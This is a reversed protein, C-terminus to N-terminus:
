FRQPPWAIRRNAPGDPRMTLAANANSFTGYDDDGRPPHSRIKHGEDIPPM